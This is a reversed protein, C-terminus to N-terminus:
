FCASPFEPSPEPTPPSGRRLSHQSSCLYISGVKRLNAGRHLALRVQRYCNVLAHITKYKNKHSNITLSNNNSNRYFIVNIRVIRKYFYNMM